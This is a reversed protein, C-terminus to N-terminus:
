DATLAIEEIFPHAEILVVKVDMKVIEAFSDSDIYNIVKGELNSYM